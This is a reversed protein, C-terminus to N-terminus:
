VFHREIRRELDDTLRSGHTEIYRAIEREARRIQAEHIANLARALFGPRESSRSPAESGVFGNLHISAAPM